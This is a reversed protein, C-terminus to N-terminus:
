RQTWELGAARTTHFRWGVATEVEAHEIAPPAFTKIAVVAPRDTGLDGISRAFELAPDIGGTEVLQELVLDSGEIVGLRVALQREGPELEHAFRDPAHRRIEVGGTHDVLVGLPEVHRCGPRMM